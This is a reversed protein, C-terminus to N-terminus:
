NDNEKEEKSINDPLSILKNARNNQGIVVRIQILGIYDLDRVAKCVVPYSWKVLKALRYPTIPYHEKILDFIHNIRYVKEPTNMYLTEIREKETKIHKTTDEM